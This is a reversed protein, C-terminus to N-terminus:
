EEKLEQLYTVEGLLFHEAWAVLHCGPAAPTPNLSPSRTSPHQIGVQPQWLLASGTPHSLLIQTM